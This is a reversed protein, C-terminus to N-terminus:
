MHLWFNFTCQVTYYTFHLTKTAENQM